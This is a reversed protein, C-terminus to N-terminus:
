RPSIGTAPGGWLTLVATQAGYLAVLESADSGLGASRMGDPTQLSRGPMKVASPQMGGQRASPQEIQGPLLWFARCVSVDPHIALGSSRSTDLTKRVNTKHQAVGPVPERPSPM